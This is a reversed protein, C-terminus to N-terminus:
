MQPGRPRGNQGVDMYIYVIYVDAFVALWDEMEVREPGLRGLGQGRHLKAGATPFFHDLRQYNSM